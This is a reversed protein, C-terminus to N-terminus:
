IDINHKKKFYDKSYMYQTNLEDKSLARDYIIVEAVESIGTWPTSYSAGIRHTAGLKRNAIGGSAQQQTGQTINYFHAIDNDADITIAVTFFLGSTYNNSLNEIYNASGIVQSKIVGGQWFVSQGSIGINFNGFVIASGQTNNIKFVVIITSNKTDAVNTQLYNAKSVRVGHALFEPNGVITLQNDKNYLDALGSKASSPRFMAVLGNSVVPSLNPLDANSFQVGTARIVTTM